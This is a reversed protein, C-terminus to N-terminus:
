KKAMVKSKELAKEVQWRGSRAYMGLNAMLSGKSETAGQTSNFFIVYILTLERPEALCSYTMGKTLRLERPEASCSCTKVVKLIIRIVV